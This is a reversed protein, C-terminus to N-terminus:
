FTIVAYSTEYKVIIKGVTSKCNIHTIKEGLDNAQEAFYEHSQLIEGECDLSDNTYDYSISGSTIWEDNKLTFLHYSANSQM